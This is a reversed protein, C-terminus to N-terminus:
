QKQLIDLLAEEVNVFEYEYGSEILKKSEISIGKTLTDAMEGLALKYVFSPINIIISTSKIRAFIKIFEAFRISEKTVFNIAGKLEEKIQFILCM